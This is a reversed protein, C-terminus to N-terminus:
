NQRLAYTFLSSGATFAIYQRGGISYTMPGNAVSGGVNAKWLLAGTRADLAIAYGERSGSFIVDTATSLVGADVVDAMKYM